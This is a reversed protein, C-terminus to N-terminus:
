KGWMLEQPWISPILLFPWLGPMWQVSFLLFFVITLFSTVQIKFVKYLKVLLNKKKKTKLAASMAYPPEWALPRILAVAAPRCWLWLLAPDSGSRRGIGCSM